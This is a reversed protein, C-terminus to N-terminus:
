RRIQPAHHLVRKGPDALLLPSPLRAPCASPQRAAPRETLDRRIARPDRRPALARAVGPPRLHAGRQRRHPPRGADRRHRLSGRAPLREGRHAPLVARLPRRGRRDPAGPNLLARSRRRLGMTAAPVLQAHSWLFRDTALPQVVVHSTWDPHAILVTCPFLVYAPTARARLPRDELAAADSGRPARRASAHRVHLGVRQAASRADHFFPYITTRHLTRLHYGELFAEMLMKWNGSQEKVVRRAVVHTGLSLAGLEEDIGDLHTAVDPSGPDLAAWVLGHREEARVQVLGHQLVDLGAFARAHPVHLLAGDLEYTWGHYPCVFAKERCDERVLRRGRHRCANKFARVVGDNGRVLVLSM